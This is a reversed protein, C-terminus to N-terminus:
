GVGEAGGALLESAYREEVYQSLVLLAVQPQRRVELAARLREDRFTPPMRVDVVALDPAHEDVAAVLGEGDGVAAVVDHGADKPFRVLGERLLVSDEAIM